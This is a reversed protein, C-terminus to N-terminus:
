AALAYSNDNAAIDMMVLGDDEGFLPPSVSVNFIDFTSSFDKIDADTLVPVKRQCEIGFELMGAEMEEATLNDLIGLAYQLFNNNM